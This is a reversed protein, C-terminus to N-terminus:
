SDSRPQVQVLAINGTAAATTIRAADLSSVVLEVTVSGDSAASEVSQLTAPYAEVGQQAEEPGDSVVVVSVEAGTRLSAPFDGPELAAGIVAQGAGPYEAPGIATGPLLSGDAIPVALTRGIIEELQAETVVSVGEPVAIRAVVLDQATVVHGVPLNGDAVLVGQAQDTGQVATVGALAGTTALALGLVVWRWRKPGGGLLRVQPPPAGTSTRPGPVTSTGVM